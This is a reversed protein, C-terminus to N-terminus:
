QALVAKFLKKSGGAACDDVIADAKAKALANRPFTHTVAVCKMGARKAAVVGAISDEIVVCDRPRVGLKKAALFYIDPAPKGNRVESGTAIASFLDKIGLAAILALAESRVASTALGIEFGKARLQRAAAITQRFPRVSRKITQLLLQHKRDALVMVKARPMRLFRSLGEEDTMGIFHKAYDKFSLKVGEQALVRRIAEYHAKESDALVGDLDFIITKM